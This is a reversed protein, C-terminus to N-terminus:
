IGLQKRERAISVMLEYAERTNPMIGMAKLKDPVSEPDAYVLSKVLTIKEAGNGNGSVQRQQAPTVLDKLPDTLFDEFGLVRKTKPDRLVLDPIQAQGKEVFGVFGGSDDRVPDYKSLIDNYAREAKLSVIEATNLGDLKKARLTFDKVANEFARKVEKNFADQERQLLQKQFESEKAALEARLAELDAEKKQLIQDYNKGKLSEYEDAKKKFDQLARAVFDFYRENTNKKLGTIQSVTEELKNATTRTVEGARAELADNYEKETLIYIGEKEAVEKLALIQTKDM